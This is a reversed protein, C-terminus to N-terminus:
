HKGVLSIGALLGAASAIWIPVMIEYPALSGETIRMAILTAPLIQLSATNLVVLMIMHRSAVSPTQNIKELEEMACLGPPTAANGLGLLNAVLNMLINNGAASKAGLGPFLLSFLPQLWKAFGKILGSADAINMLGKWLCMIGLLSIALGIADKAGSFAAASVQETKGTFFSLIISFAIICCWVVNLM